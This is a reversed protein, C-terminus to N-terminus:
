RRLFSKLPWERHLLGEGVWHGTTEVPMRNMEEHCKGCDEINETDEKNMKKREESWVLLGMHVPM